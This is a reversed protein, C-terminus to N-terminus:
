IREVIEIRGGVAAAIRPPLYIRRTPEELQEVGVIWGDECAPCKVYDAGGMWVWGPEHVSCVACRWRFDRKRIKVGDRNIGGTVARARPAPADAAFPVSRAQM